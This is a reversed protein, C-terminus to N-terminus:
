FLEKVLDAKEMKLHLAIDSLIASLTGVKLYKHVPITIHHEGQLTTTLRVHSGSQRTAEYGYKKLAKRLEEGSLERPLRM